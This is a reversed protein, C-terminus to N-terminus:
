KIFLHLPESMDGRSVAFATLTKEKHITYEAGSLESAKMQGAVNLALARANKGLCASSVAPVAIGIYPNEAKLPTKMKFQLLKFCIPIYINRDLLQKETKRFKEM